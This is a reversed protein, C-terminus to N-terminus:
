GLERLGGELAAILHSTAARPATQLYGVRYMRDAAQAFAVAPLFLILWTFRGM